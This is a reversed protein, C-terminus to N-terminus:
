DHLEFVSKFIQIHLDIFAFHSVIVKSLLDDIHHAFCIFCASTDTLTQVFELVVLLCQFHVCHEVLVLRVTPLLLNCLLQLMLLLIGIPLQVVKVKFERGFDAQIVHFLVKLLQIIQEQNFEFLYFLGFFSTSIQDDILLEEM